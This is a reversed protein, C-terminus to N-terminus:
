VRFASSHVVHGVSGVTHLFLLKPYRTEARKKHFRYRDWGLMFFLADFNRPGSEGSHVVHGASGMPHLFVLEDYHTEARKKTSDTGTGGSCSFHHTLTERGSSV